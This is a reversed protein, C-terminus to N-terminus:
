KICQAAERGALYGSSWAWQLNYGGCKADVDCLEGTIYLGSEIKSEMTTNCIESLLIGGATVQANDWSMLGTVELRWGKLASAIAKIEDFSLSISSRSLPYIGIDKLVVYSLNKNLIGILYTEMTQEPRSKLLMVVDDYSYDPLFDVLIEDGANAFRSLNFIPIGSINEKNFQIEGTQSYKSALTVKAYQRVGHVGKNTMLQCLAPKTKTVTHGMEKLIRFGDGDSGSKPAAYGGTSIIVKDASVKENNVSYISFAGNNKEIRMVPFDTKIFVGVRVAEARLVDLVASAQCSLPYVRGEDEIKPLVGIEKFFGITKEPSFVSIAHSVFDTNYDGIETNINTFNCRGNGTSLIKKGVRDNKELVVTYAGNRAASIAAMLGSAGGGIIVVKNGV